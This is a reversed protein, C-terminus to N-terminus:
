NFCNKLEKILMCLSFLAIAAIIFIQLKSRKRTNKPPNPVRLPQTDLM